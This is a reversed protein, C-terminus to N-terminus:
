PVIAVVGGFFIALVEKSGGTMIGYHEVPVVLHRFRRAEHVQIPGSVGSGIPQAFNTEFALDFRKRHQGGGDPM